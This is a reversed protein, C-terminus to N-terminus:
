ANNIVGRFSLSCVRVGVACLAVRLLVLMIRSHTHTHTEICTSIYTCRSTAAQTEDRMLHANVRCCYHIKFVCTVCVCVCLPYKSTATKKKTRFKKEITESFSRAHASLPTGAVPFDLPRCSRRQTTFHPTSPTAPRQGLFVPGPRPLIVTFTILHLLIRTHTHTCTQHSFRQTTLQNACRSRSVRM